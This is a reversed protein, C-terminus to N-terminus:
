LPEDENRTFYVSAVYFRIRSVTEADLDHFHLAMGVTPESRVVTAAGTIPEDRREDLLRFHFTIETGVPLPQPTDIFAGTQSLDEIFGTQTSGESAFEFELRTAVRVSDRKEDNSM